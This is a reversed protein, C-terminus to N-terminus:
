NFLNFFEDVYEDPTGNDFWGVIEGDDKLLKKCANVMDAIFPLTEEDIRDYCDIFVFDYLMETKYAYLLGDTNLVLHRKDSFYKQAEKFTRMISSIHEHVKIVDKNKEVTTLSTVKPCSLLYKSAVGLGLGIELVRGHPKDGLQEIYDVAESELAWLTHGPGIELFLEGAMEYVKANGSEALLVGDQFYIVVGEM